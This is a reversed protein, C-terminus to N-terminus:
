EYYNIDTLFISNAFRELYIRLINPMTYIIILKPRKANHLVWYNNEKINDQYEQNAVGYKIENRVFNFLEKDSDKLYNDYDSTSIYAKFDSIHYSKIWNLIDTYLEKNDYNIFTMVNDALQEPSIDRGGNIHKDLHLKEVIYKNINIM